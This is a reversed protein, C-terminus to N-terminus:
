EYPLIVTFTSGAGPQSEVLIKGGHLEIIEKTYSLGIGFGKVDHINGRSARYFKDFIKKQTENNMGRGKDSVSFFIEKNENWTKIRIDPREPSYKRANDLLNHIVNSIHLTDANILPHKATLEETLIGESKEVQMLFTSAANRILEHLNVSEKNLQMEKKDLRALQLVREVQANMRENEQRIIGSYYKIQTENAAPATDRLADAAVSITAIPTKLEHTMNNIFDSKMDSLKKQRILIFLTYTFCIIVILIFVFSSYLSMDSSAFLFSPKQPFWLTLFNNGPIIDNPFLQTTYSSIKNKEAAATDSSLLVSNSEKNVVAYIFPVEIGRNKLSTALTKEIQTSDIRSNLNQLPLLSEREIKKMVVSIQKEKNHLRDKLKELKLEITEQREKSKEKINNEFEKELEDSFEFHNLMGLSDHKFKYKFNFHPIKLKHGPFNISEMFRHVSDTALATASMISDLNVSLSNRTIFGASERNELISATEHLSEMVNNDFQKQRISFLERIHLVQFIVLGALAVSMFTTILLIASRKM